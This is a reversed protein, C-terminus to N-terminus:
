SVLARGGILTHNCYNAGISSSKCSSDERDRCSEPHAQKPFSSLRRPTTAAMYFDCIAEYPRSTFIASVLHCSFLAKVCRGEIGSSRGAYTPKHDLLNPFGFCGLPHSPFCPDRRKGQAKQSIGPLAAPLTLANVARLSVVLSAM